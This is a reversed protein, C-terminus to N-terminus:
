DKKDTTVIVQGLEHSNMVYDQAQAIDELEFVKAIPIKLHNEQILKFMQNLLRSDVADSSFFILFKNKLEYPSFSDVAWGGALAGIMTVAGGDTVHKISDNMTAIGVMDFVADFQEDTQLQNDKDLVVQNAGLKILQPLMEKRRSTGIVTLGMAQGLQIMALGVTSTAGRVLISHGASVRAHQLAGFATYFNEPYTALQTYDGDLSTPYINKDDILAYEQYSGDVDHGLGGMLTVVRQGKMFHGNTSSQEIVGVAEVGLVRPFTVAPWGTQRTLVEYRHVGFAHIKIVSQDTTAQPIPREGIQLVSSDGTQRVVVAKM